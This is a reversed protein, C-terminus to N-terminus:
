LNNKIGNQELLAKINPARGRFRKFLELPEETGGPELINQLFSRGTDRNFIGEEKFRSFADASLVDAWLYSYYGAAYGGSFIHTFSHQFRNYPVIPTVAVAQRVKNLIQQIQDHVTPDYEVHLKFDFLAFELQRMIYMASQFNKAARMKNFLTDDLSQGTEYHGSLLDMGQKEWGWNEMFQSPLEIVDWPVAQMSSAAPYDVNCLLHHLGHGFEHLLTLVEDHTFLAPKDGVPPTFNCTLIAVPPQM